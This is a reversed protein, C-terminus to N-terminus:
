ISPAPNDGEILRYTSGDFRYRAHSQVPKAPRTIELPTDETAGEVPDKKEGTFEIMLDGYGTAGAVTALKWEGSVDWCSDLPRCWGNNDSHVIIPDPTLNRVHGNSVDYLSLMEITYGQWSGGHTMALGTKGAGLQVWRSMGPNGSSGLADFNDHRKVTKWQGKQRILVYLNLLGSTGHSDIIHGDDGVMLANALLLTQGTPLATHNWPTIAYTSITTRDEFDPLEAVAQDQITDYKEGFVARMLEALLPDKAPDAAQAPSEAVASAAPAPIRAKEQRNSCASLAALMVLLLPCRILPHKM